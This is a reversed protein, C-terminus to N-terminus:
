KKNRKQERGFSRISSREARSKKDKKGKDHKRDRRSESFSKEKDHKSFSKSFDGKGGNIGNSVAKEVSVAVGDFKANRMALLVENVHPEDVEFFSFNRMIDIRGISVDRNDVIRNIFGMMKSPAINDKSGLSIFLRSYKTNRERFGDKLSKDKRLKKSKEDDREDVNIDKANRYYDLFRNFELSVFKKILEERSMDQLKEEIQASFASIQKEDIEVNKMKDILNFLQIECIEKGSPVPKAVFQKKCVKEILRMRNKERLHLICISVGSKGARGTRGSRHIYVEPDDPLNYNIVHSLDNVDLGRAAVDTAVLIQLHKSRFRQMVNDRQAQSLDGHLADANYGDAILKDAVEKCEMRTRCFVIGYIDPNVDAIRKLAEYRDKSRVVFYQHEVNEAGINKRAVAIEQPNKMYSHAMSEIDAPMTASFLLTTKDEPTENLLRDLDEKFGMSLMEDAEDLVLWKISNIKLSKREMLDIARGPTAVVIQCRKKLQKIQTEISSGGYVPVVELDKMRSSFNKLDGTIQLCLERTPCLVLVQTDKSQADIMNLVPLGFAATKGTGTQALAILDGGGNIIFPITKEQIPTLQEFGMDKVAQVIPEKLGIEEFNM